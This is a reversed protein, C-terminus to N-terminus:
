IGLLRPFGAKASGDFLHNADEKQKIPAVQFVWSIFDTEDADPPGIWLTRIEDTFVKAAQRAADIQGAMAYAAVFFARTEPPIGKLQGVTAICQEYQGAMFQVMALYGLYYDPHTPNLRIATQALSLGVEPQGLFAEGRARSILVDSDIPNLDGAM